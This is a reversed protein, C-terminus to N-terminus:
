AGTGVHKDRRAYAAEPTVPQPATTLIRDSFLFFNMDFLHKYDEIMERTPTNTIYDELTREKLVTLFRPSTLDRYFRVLIRHIMGNRLNEVALAESACNEVKIDWTTPEDSHGELEATWVLMGEVAPVDMGLTIAVRMAEVADDLSVDPASPPTVNM